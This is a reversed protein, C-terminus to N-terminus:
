KSWSVCFWECLYAYLMGCVFKPSKAWDHTTKDFIDHSQKQPNYSRAQQCQSFIGTNVKCQCQVYLYQFIYSVVDTPIYDDDFYEFPVIELKNAQTEKKPIKDFHGIISWEATPRIGVPAASPGWITPLINTTIPDGLFFDQCFCLVWKRTTSTERAEYAQMPTCFAWCVCSVALHM